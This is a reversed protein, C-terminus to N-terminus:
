TDARRGPSLRPGTQGSGTQESSALRNRQARSERKQLPGGYSTTSLLIANRDARPSEAPLVIIARRALRGVATACMLAACTLAWDSVSRWESRRMISSLAAHRSPCQQFGTLQIHAPSQMWNQAALWSQKSPYPNAPDPMSNERLEM